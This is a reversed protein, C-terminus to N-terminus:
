QLNTLYFADDPMKGGVSAAEAEFLVQLFASLQTQMQTGAIYTINCQPLAKKAIAAKPLIEAAEILAATQEPNEQSFRVSAEYATLFERLADPHAQAFESRVAICGQMVTTGPVAKEWEQTLDLAIRLADNQLMAATVNPEPLMGIAVTNAALATALEAHDAMYSITLDRDPDLGNKQLVYRLIYEPTSAQGTAYLTKGRLDAVSQISNGNELIYLVGLTNVAAVCVQGQTKQYLTAALNTPLAAIDFSGQIMGASLESPASSVTFVYANQLTETKADEMLKAMGMGTPGKLAAVRVQTPTSTQANAHTDSADTTIQELPTQTTGGTCGVVASLSCFLVLLLAMCRIIRKHKM